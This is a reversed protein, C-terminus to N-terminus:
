PNFALDVRVTENDRVVFVRDRGQKWDRPLLFYKDPGHALLLLGSYMFHYKADAHTPDRQSGGGYILLDDVSFVVVSTKEGLNDATAEAQRRGQDDGYVGVAWFTALFGVALLVLPLMWSHEATYAPAHTMALPAHYNTRLVVIYALLIVGAVLMIPLYIGLPGGLEDTFTFAVVAFVILGIGTGLVITLAWRLVRSVGPVAAEDVVPQQQTTALRQRQHRPQATLAPLVVLRHAGLLVLLPLLSVMAPWFTVSISSLLYDSTSYGLMRVDVGFYAYYAHSYTWGFYYLLGTILAAQSIIAGFVAFASTHDPNRDGTNDVTRTPDPGAPPQQQASAPTPSGGSGGTRGQQGRRIMTVAYRAVFWRGRGLVTAHDHNHPSRLADHDHAANPSLGHVTATGRWRDFRSSHRNRFGPLHHAIVDETGRQVRSPLRQPAPEVRARRHGASSGTRTNDSAHVADTM